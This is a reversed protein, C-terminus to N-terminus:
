ALVKMLVQTVATGAVLFILGNVRNKVEGVDRELNSMRQEMVAEKAASAIRGAVEGTVGGTPRSRFRQLTKELSKSMDFM